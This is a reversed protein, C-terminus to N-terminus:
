DAAPVKLTRIGRLFYVVHGIWVMLLIAQAWPVRGMMVFGFLMTATIVCMVRIKAKRTMGRERVWDQLNERYLRTGCFWSNLRDSSKGFGWAAMLLFPFAPLLPLIAGIAGLGLGVFGLCLYLLKGPDKGALAHRIVMGPKRFLMRPGSYKMVERIQQRQEPSYCHVRCQSCFTKEAMFPCKDIRACAYAKLAEGEASGKYRIDIMTSVTDKELQRKEEVAQRQRDETELGTRRSGTQPKLKGNM